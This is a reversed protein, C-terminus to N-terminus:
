QAVAARARVRQARREAATLGAVVGHSLTGFRALCVDKDVPCSACVRRAFEAGARDGKDPFMVDRALLPSACAAGALPGAGRVDVGLHEAITEAPQATVTARIPHGIRGAGPRRLPLARNM